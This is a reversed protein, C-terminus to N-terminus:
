KFFLLQKFAFCFAFALKMFEEDLLHSTSTLGQNNEEFYLPVHFHIRWEGETNAEFADSLDPFQHLQGEKDKM